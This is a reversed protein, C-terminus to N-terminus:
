EMEMTKSEGSSKDFLVKCSSIVNRRFRETFRQQFYKTTDQISFLCTINGTPRSSFSTGIEAILHQFGVIYRRGAIWVIRNIDILGLSKEVTNCEFVKRNM